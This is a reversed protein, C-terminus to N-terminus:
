RRELVLEWAVGTAGCDFSQVTSESYTGTLRGDRLALDLHWQATSTPSGGCTPAVAAPLPGAARYGGDAFRLPPRGYDRDFPTVECRKGSCDIALTVTRTGRCTSDGLGACRTVAGEGSWEGELDSSTAPSDDATPTGSGTVPDQRGGVALYGAVAVVVVGILVLPLWLTAWRRPMTM